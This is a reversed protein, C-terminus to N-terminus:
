PLDKNLLTQALLLDEPGTIKINWPSSEVIAIKGGIAEVFYADDTAILQKEAANRYASIIVTKRFTQPTQAQWIQNRDLTRVISKAAVEKLTNTSRAALVAGDYVACLEISRQILAPQVLPRVGDHICVLEARNDVANLGNQVSEQRIAGGAVFKIPVASSEPLADELQQSNLYEPPIIVIIETISSLSLFKQVSHFLVPRNDLLLFQKPLTSKM